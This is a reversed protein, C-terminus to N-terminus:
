SSSPKKNLKSFESEIKSNKFFIPHDKLKYKDPVKGKKAAGASERTPVM